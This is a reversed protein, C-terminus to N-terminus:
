LCRNNLKKSSEGCFLEMVCESALFNVREFDSQTQTSQVVKSQRESTSVLDNGDRNSAHFAAIIAKM